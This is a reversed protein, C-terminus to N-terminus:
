LIMIVRPYRWMRNMVDDEVVTALHQLFGNRFFVSDVEESDDEDEGDFILIASCLVRGKRKYKGLRIVVGRWWVHDGSEDDLYYVEIEDKLKPRSTTAM